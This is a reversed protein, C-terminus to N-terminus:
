RRYFVSVGATGPEDWPQFWVSRERLDPENVARCALWATWWGLAIQSLYHANDNVRSFAPYTSALYFGTKLLPRETMQAATIFPMAGVFAHGSVANSDDFPKWRSGFATEDPRSAGLLVQMLLMPPAGVLYGRTVRGAYQGAPGCLPLGELLGGAFAIGAFAPIFIQGEGFTKWFRAFDDTGSSRVDRQYWSQFDEDLSTNALPAALGVALGLDRLTVWSYYNRHDHRVNGLTEWWM